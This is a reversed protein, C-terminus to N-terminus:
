TETLTETIAPKAPPTVEVPINYGGYQLLMLVSSCLLGMGFIIAKVERLISLVYTLTQLLKCIFYKLSRNPM